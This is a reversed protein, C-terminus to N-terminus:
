TVFIFGAELGFPLYEELRIRLNAERQPQKLHAFAGMESGDEAGNRIEEATARRLQAYGPEGYRRSTFQPRLRARVLEKEIATLDRELQQAEKALAMDPQCHYRQPTLSGAPLYSFRVCGEQQRRTSVKSMFIVESARTLQRVHVPGFITTRDITTPPGPEDGSDSAAIAYQIEGDPTILAQVISDEIAMCRSGAPMRISGTISKRITVSMEDSAVDVVLSDRDPFAADGDLWLMRGPVLTSHQLTFDLGGSLEFAGEILLGDMILTATGTAVGLSSNGVLRLNPWVGDAAQLMLWGEDPLQIDINGGYVGNDLIQIVSPKKGATDWNDIAKQITDVSSDKAVKIVEPTFEPKVMDRRRRYPGGGIDASFGHTYNVNYQTIDRPNAPEEGVAFSLLGHEVDIAVKGAAPREFNSLDMSVVDEPPIPKGDKVINLGQNPGYYDSDTSESSAQERFNKLDMDFAMPRIPGPVHKEVALGMEDEERHPKNFLPAMNGLRSFTYCHPHGRVPRPPVVALPYYQLRWLFFGIKRINYWGETCDIPRIDVTHSLVDFPGNLRDVVDMSRLNVTGVWDSARPSGPEPNAAMEFRLHNLNQTWGMLKFFEVVHAGWGTVDRALEELMAATGKRRRYSITKAVDTRQLQKVEHLPRNGVLDGIYPIVWEACTEIFWDDYLGDIDDQIAQVQEEIIELLAKLPESQEADRIRYITPLLNYFRNQNEQSM